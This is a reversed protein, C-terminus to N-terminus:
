KITLLPALIKSIDAENVESRKYIYEADRIEKSGLVLPKNLNTDETLLVTFTASELSRTKHLIGALMEYSEGKKLIQTNKERIKIFDPTKRLISYEKEYFGSYISYESGEDDKTYEINEISGSMIWSKFNFIHDHIMLESSQLDNTVLPNWYHLRIKFPQEELLTCSYFGLPHRTFPRNLFKRIELIENLSIKYNELLNIFNDITYNAM